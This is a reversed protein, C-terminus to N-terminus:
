VHWMANLMAYLVFVMMVVEICSRAELESVSSPNSHCRYRMRKPQVWHMGFIHMDPTSLLVRIHHSLCGAKTGLQFWVMCVKLQSVFDDPM